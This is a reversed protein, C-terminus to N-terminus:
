VHYVNRFRDLKVKLEEIVAAMKDATVSVDRLPDSEYSKNRKSVKGLSEGNLIHNIVKETEPGMTEIVRWFESRIARVDVEDDNCMVTDFLDYVDEGCIVINSTENEYRERDRKIDHSICYLCNYAVRYIYASTFRKSDNVLIPVNKSLYQLVTSVADEELAYFSKTKNWALTIEDFFQVFLVAAKDSDAVLLWDNYSLPRTYGTYSRFLNRTEYFANKM